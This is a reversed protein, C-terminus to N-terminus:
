RGFAALWEQASRPALAFNRERVAGM